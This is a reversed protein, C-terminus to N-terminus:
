HAKEEAQPPTTATVDKHERHWVLRFARETRATVKVDDSIRLGAVWVVRDGDRVVPTAARASRPVKADVFLDSLKRSGEMGLPRIRDGERAADVVLTDGLSGADMLATDLDAPLIAPDAVEATMTGAEGLDAKGPLPLLAPAVRAAEGGSRVVLNDYETRAELGGPLDRAFRDDSVGEVVAEIHSMELRGAEPFVDVLATRVVRRAMTRSLTGMLDRRFAVGGPVAVTFDHVFADTMGAILEEDDALLALSRAVNESAGPAISTLAPVLEHRVRSRLRTTDANTADERWGQGLGELYGEIQDRAADILPRVIRGRTAPLSALGGPGSGTALRMLFTELRDDRTHATAIRGRVAPVGAEACRTDLEEDAFRYRIRRGADELNLGEASAWSAVDFRVARFPVGLSAALAGVFAEDADADEGRLGHNVHLVSVRLQEGLVGAALLRLLATSDAGGSVLAVVPAGTPFMDHATTTRAAIDCLAHAMGVAYRLRTELADGPRRVAPQGEAYPAIITRDGAIEFM